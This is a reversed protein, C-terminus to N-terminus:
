GQRRAFPSRQLESEEVTEVEGFCTLDLGDAGRAALVDGGCSYSWSVVGLAALQKGLETVGDSKSQDPIAPHVIRYIM